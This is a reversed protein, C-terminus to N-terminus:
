DPLIDELVGADNLMKDIDVKIQIKTKVKEEELRAPSNYMQEPQTLEIGLVEAAAKYGSNEGNIGPVSDGDLKINGEYLHEITEYTDQYLFRIETIDTETLAAHEADTFGLGANAIMSVNELAKIRGALFERYTPDDIESEHEAKTDKIIDQMKKIADETIPFEPTLIEKSVPLLKAAEDTIVPDQLVSTGKIYSQGFEDIYINGTMKIHQGEEILSSAGGQEYICAVSSRQTSSSLNFNYIHQGDKSLRVTLNEINGECVFTKPNRPRLIKGKKNEVYPIGEASLTNKIEDLEKNNYTVVAIEEPKYGEENILHKVKDTIWKSENKLNMETDRSDELFFPETDKNVNEQDNSGIVTSKTEEASLIQSVRELLKTNPGMFSLENGGTISAYHNQVNKIDAAIRQAEKEFAAEDPIDVSQRADEKRFIDMLEDPIPTIEEEDIHHYWTIEIRNEEKTNEVLGELIILPDGEDLGLYVDKAKEGYAVCKMEYEKGDKDKAKITLDTVDEGNEKREEPGETVIGTLNMEVGHHKPKPPEYTGAEQVIDILEKDDVRALEDYGRMINNDNAFTKGYLLSIDYSDERRCLVDVTYGNPLNIMFGYPITEGELNLKTRSGFFDKYTISGGMEEIKKILEDKSTSITENDKEPNSSTPYDAM